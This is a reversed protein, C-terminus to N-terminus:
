AVASIIMREIVDCNPDSTSVGCTDPLPTYHVFWDHQLLHTVLANHLYCLEQQYLGM